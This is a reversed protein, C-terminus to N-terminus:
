PPAAPEPAPGAEAVPAQAPEAAGRGGCALALSALLAGASSARWSFQFAMLTGRHQQPTAPPEGAANCARIYRVEGRAATLAPCARQAPCLQGCRGAKDFFEAGRGDDVLNFIILTKM